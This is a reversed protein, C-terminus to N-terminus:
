RYIVPKGSQVNIYIGAPFVAYSPVDTNARKIDNMKSVDGYERQAINDWRDGENTTIQKYAM